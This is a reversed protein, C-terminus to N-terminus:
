EFVLPEVLSAALECGVAFRLATAGETPGNCALHGVAERTMRPACWRLFAAVEPCDAAGIEGDCDSHQLFLRCARLHEAPVVEDDWWVWEHVPVGAAAAGAEVEAPIAVRHPPFSGGCAEAVGQRFRNFSSYGGRYADHSCDLGM